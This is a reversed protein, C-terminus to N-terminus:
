AAPLFLAQLDSLFDFGRPTPRVRQLDREILGRREAEDLPRQLVSPPLATREGFLAMDFGDRLRLANLMFEFPLQDRAIEDHQAIANGELAGAMYRAPERWRVQRVVRHPFTLKGHAGAGIGLYDGYRWYNLNHACAHGARAYASVEYRQMGADATRATIADLMAAATDHDPVAPPRVAFLTNPEITLHYVSLHPPEFALAQALDAELEAPTQGPLAYMLDLNFTDFADVAEEVSALAQAADHVRGLARLKADDFSQVGISLRTVGADRFGRFREREFTGPNAELTVECGAELPLLSRIDGLLRDIHEPAFLSPTGGGIFVSHIRRGWVFPLAAELDARLADLYRAHPPEGKAEHSNFDCYPCKKLCWPLHVYLSLPPLASFHLAAPRM